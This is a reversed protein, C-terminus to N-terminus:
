GTSARPTVIVGFPLSNQATCPVLSILQEVGVPEPPLMVNVPYAFLCPWFQDRSHIQGLIQRRGADADGVRWRPHVIGGVSLQSAHGFSEVIM